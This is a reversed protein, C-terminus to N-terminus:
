RSAFRERYAEEFFGGPWEDIFDGDEDLRLSLVRSSGGEDPAVYLVSVHDPHIIKERIRRQLRLLLAESHTEVVWQLRRSGYTSSMSTRTSLNESSTDILFDAIHAQLRPHLHIEPQEVCLLPFTRASSRRALLGEVIIPLLQSFGFGVDRPSVPVKRVLDLLELVHLDGAVADSVRRVSVRYPIEFKEFWKNVSGILGDADDDRDTEASLVRMLNEGSVGVTDAAGTADVYFREPHCRLPGLYRVHRLHARVSGSILRFADEVYELALIAPDFSRSRPSHQDEYLLAPDLLSRLGLTVSQSLAQHMVDKTPRSAGGAMESVFARRHLREWNSIPNKRNLDRYDHGFEAAAVMSNVAPNALRLFTTEDEEDAVDPVSTANSSVGGDPKALFSLAFPKDGDASYTVSSVRGRHDAKTRLATRFGFEIQATFPQTYPGQGSSRTNRMVEHEVVLGLQMELSTDHRHIASVFSGSDILEGRTVLYPSGGYQFPSQWAATQTMTLLSQILSSKGGSNPGYILTIPALPVVQRLGLAKYNCATFQKIM